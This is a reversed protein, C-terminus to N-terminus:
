LSKERAIIEKDIYLISYNRWNPNRIQNMPCFRNNRQRKTFIPEDTDSKLDRHCLQSKMQM